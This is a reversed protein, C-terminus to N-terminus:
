DALSQYIYIYIIHFSIFSDLFTLIFFTLYLIYIFNPLFRTAFSNTINDVFSFLRISPRVFRISYFEKDALM